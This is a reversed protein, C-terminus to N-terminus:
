DLYINGLCVEKWVFYYEMDKIFVDVGNNNFKSANELLWLWTYHYLKHKRNIYFTLKSPTSGLFVSDGLTPLNEIRDDILINELSRCDYFAKDGIAELFNGFLANELNECGRFAERGISKISNGINVFILSNCFSFANDGIETINSGSCLIYILNEYFLFPSKENKDAIISTTIRPMFIQVIKDMGKAAENLPPSTFVTGGGMTAENLELNAYLGSNGIIEILRMYNNDPQSLDGLDFYVCLYVPFEPSDGNFRHKALKKEADSLSNVKIHSPTDGWNFCTTFCVMCIVCFSIYRAFVSVRTKM